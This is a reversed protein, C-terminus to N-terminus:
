TLIAQARVLEPWRADGGFRAVVDALSDRDGDGILEFSDLLCRLEFLTSGQTRAFELAAGLAARRECSDAFTHARVRLLEADYFRMGSDEALGLAMELRQRAENPHGGAIMLRGIIADKFTLYNNLHLRRAGDVRLAIKNALVMLKDADAGDRLATLAKVTAHETAGVLQWLDLGSQESLQRLDAVRTAAAALQGAELRVWIEVFYTFARNYDNQPYVLGNSRTIAEAIGAEARDLDGNALDILALYNHAAAIPDTAIWWTANLKHPEAASRDALARALHDRAAGFDGELWFVTGLSSEMAQYGWQQDQALRGYLAELLEHARRLEARSVYYSLLATLTTFLEDQHDGASALALCREFDAPGEGSMSGQTAGTLFGRELRVAIETRDRDPGADTRALEDVAKTLCEVAEHVAGRRRAVVSAKRYAEVAADHHWAQEFHSAVLRWDPEVGPAADALACAARAHLDRAQTPPALEAAVERFLEHRFRWRDDGRRELVRARVLKSVVDDINTTTPGVVSRLLELDGARGIVAAAEVIPVV